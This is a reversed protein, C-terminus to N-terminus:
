KGLLREALMSDLTPKAGVSTFTMQCNLAELIRLLKAAGFEAVAGTEFRALTSQGLNVRKALELQTLGLEKRLRAVEIGLEPLTTM